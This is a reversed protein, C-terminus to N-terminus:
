RTVAPRNGNMEYFKLFRLLWCGPFSLVFSIDEKGKQTHEHYYLFSDARPSLPYLFQDMADNESSSYPGSHSPYPGCTICFLPLSHSCMSTQTSNFNHAVPSDPFGSQPKGTKAINQFKWVFSSAWALLVVIIAKVGGCVTINGKWWFRCFFWPITRVEPAFISDLNFDIHPNVAALKMSLLQLVFICVLWIISFDWNIAFSFSFLLFKKWFSRIIM